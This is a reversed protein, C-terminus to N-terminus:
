KLLEWLFAICEDSQLTIDDQRLNWKVGLPRILHGGGEFSVFKYMEGGDGIYISVTHIANLVDTLRILRDECPEDSGQGDSCRGRTKIDSNAKIAAARIADLQENRTMSLQPKM